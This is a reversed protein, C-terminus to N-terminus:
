AIDSGDKKAMAETFSQTKAKGAQSLTTPTNTTQATKAAKVAKVADVAEVGGVPVFWPAKTGEPVDFEEGARIRAGGFFGTSLAVVKM